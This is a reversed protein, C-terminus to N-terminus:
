RLPMARALQNLNGLHDGQTITQNTLCRRVQDLSFIANGVQSRSFYLGNINGNADEDIYAPKPDGGWDISVDSNHELIVDIKALLAVMETCVSEISAATIRTRDASLAM